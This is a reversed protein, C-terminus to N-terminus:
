VWTGVVASVGAIIAATGLTAVLLASVDRVVHRVAPSATSPLAM